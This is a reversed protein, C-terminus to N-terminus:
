IEVKIITSISQNIILRNTDGKRERTQKYAVINRLDFIFRRFVSGTSLWESVFVVVISFDESAPSFCDIVSRGSSDHFNIVFSFPFSFRHIHSLCCALCSLDVGWNVFFFSLIIYM